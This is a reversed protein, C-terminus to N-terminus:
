RPARPDASIPTGRRTALTREVMDRFREAYREESLESHVREYAAAALRDALPADTLLNELHATLEDVNESEFLLATRGHELYYPTGDVRSAIIPKRAAMADMLVRAMADTRSPLVFISCEEMLCM